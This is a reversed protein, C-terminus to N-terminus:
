KAQHLVSIKTNGDSVKEVTMSLTADAKDATIIGGAEANDVSATINWGQGPLQEKYWVYVEVPGDTSSYIISTTVVQDVTIASYEDRKAGEYVPVDSLDKGNEGQETEVKPVSKEIEKKINESTKDTIFSPCGCCGISAIALCAMMFLIFVVKIRFSGM